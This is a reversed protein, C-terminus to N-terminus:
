IKVFKFSELKAGNERGRFTLTHSGQNLEVTYADFQPSKFSGNGRSTVDDERWVNFESASATPNLDWIVEGKNDIDVFFSDSGKDATFVRATIKYTGATNIQFTYTAAGSNNKTSEIYSGGSTNSDQVTQMPATLNGSEAEIVVPAVILADDDMGNCNEDIGNDHIETAGPNIAANNDNCDTAASYGDQDLDDDDAMGNCNEDIGNYPIEIADPHITANNDNCDSNIDYGDQDADPITLEGVKVLQFYDIKANSERGRFTISHTGKQLEVTFPDYQPNSYSGNGRSTVNDERWVNFESAAGSPNLDWIVEGYNDITVFFSDTGSNAAFVRAVVKYIGPTPINFNYIASGSNGTSTQIYYGGAAASDAVKQMPATLSGSEADIAGVPTVILVDDAMGNCNEDIGNNLTETAGPNIAPDSDNCDNLSSYGDNDLDDDDAMGNCNEDVGNYPVETTGPNIAPDNDNCDNLSTYGDNDLDDDDAMGNCNEDVGNYPVETAGPNIAADQDNCDNNIDYGDQDADAVAIEGVKVLYFYDLKANAERGGFSIAVTPLM